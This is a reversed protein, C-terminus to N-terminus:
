RKNPHSVGSDDVADTFDPRSSLKVPLSNEAVLEIVKMANPHPEGTPNDRHYWVEGDAKKLDAFKRALQELTVPQGDATIDGGTTVKVKIM